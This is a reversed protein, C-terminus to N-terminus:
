NTMLGTTNSFVPCHSVFYKHGCDNRTDCALFSHTFHQKPCLIFSMHRTSSKLNITIITNPRSFSSSNHFSTKLLRVAAKRRRDEMGDSRVTECLAFKTNRNNCMINNIEFGNQIMGCTNDFFYSLRTRPQDLFYAITNDLWNMLYRYMFPTGDRRHKWGIYIIEPVIRMHRWALHVSQAEKATKLSALQGGHERCLKDAQNWSIVPVPHM